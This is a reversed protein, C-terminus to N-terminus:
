LAHMDGLDHYLLWSPGLDPAKMNVGLLLSRVMPVGLFFAALTISVAM